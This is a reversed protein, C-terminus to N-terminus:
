WELAVSAGALRPPKGDGLRDVVYSHVTITDSVFSKRGTMSGDGKITSRHSLPLHRGKRTARGGLESSAGKLGKFDEGSQKMVLRAQRRMARPGERLAAMATLAARDSADQLQSKLGHYQSIEMAGAIGVAMPLAAAAFIIMVNGRENGAFHRLFNGLRSTKATQGANM